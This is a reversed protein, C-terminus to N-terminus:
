ALLTDCDDAFMRKLIWVICVTDMACQRTHILWWSWKHSCSICYFAPLIYGLTQLENKKGKKGHESFADLVVTIPFTSYPAVLLMDHWYWPTVNVFHYRRSKETVETRFLFCHTLSHLLSWCAFMLRMWLVNVSVSRTQPMQPRKLIGNLKFTTLIPSLLMCVGCVGYQTCIWTRQICMENSKKVCHLM